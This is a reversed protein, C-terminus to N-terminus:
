FNFLECYNVVHLYLTLQKQGGTGSLLVMWFGYVTTCKVTDM